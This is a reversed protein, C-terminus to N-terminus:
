RHIAYDVISATHTSGSVFVSSLAGATGMDDSSEM